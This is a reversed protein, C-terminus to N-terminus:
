SVIGMFTYISTKIWNSFVKLFQNVKWQFFSDFSPHTDFLYELRKTEFDKLNIYVANANAMDFKDRYHRYLIGKLAAEGAYIDANQIRITKRYHSRFSDNFTKQYEDDPIVRVYNDLAAGSYFNTKFQNM